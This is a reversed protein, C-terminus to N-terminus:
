RAFLNQLYRNSPTRYVFFDEDISIVQELRLKEAVLVLSADAFDMPRDAYKETLQCIVKLDAQNIDILEIAGSHVWRLFDLQSTISFDLLHTVETLVPTTSYLRGCYQQLFQKIREHFEDDRDFLAILPGSDIVARNQM